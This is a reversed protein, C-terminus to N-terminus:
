KWLGFDHGVNDSGQPPDLGSVAAPYWINCPFATMIRRFRASASGSPLSGSGISPASGFSALSSLWRSTSRGAVVRVDDVQAIYKDPYAVEVALHQPLKKLNSILDAVTM